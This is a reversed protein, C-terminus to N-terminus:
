ALIVAHIDDENVLILSNTCDEVKEFSFRAYLVKEGVKVYKCEQGIGIVTGTNSVKRIEAESTEPLVLLGSKLSDKVMSSVGVYENPEPKILVRRGLVKLHM